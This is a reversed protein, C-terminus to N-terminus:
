QCYNISQRYRKSFNFNDIITIANSCFPKIHGDSSILLAPNLCHSAASARELEIKEVLFQYLGFFLDEHETDASTTNESFIDIYVSLSFRQQEHHFGENEELDPM